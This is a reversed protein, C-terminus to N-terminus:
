SIRPALQMTQLHYLEILIHFKMNSAKVIIGHRKLKQIVLRLHGLHQEFTASYILLDDLYLVTFQDRYGDMCHEMFRQFYAPPNMLSFPIRVWEYFEWPTIFTTYKRSNPNLQFQYHAKSQDLLSFFNNGGM